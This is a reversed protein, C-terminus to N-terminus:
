ISHPMLSIGVSVQTQLLLCMERTELSGLEAIYANLLNIENSWDHGKQILNLQCNFNMVSDVIICVKNKPTTLYM